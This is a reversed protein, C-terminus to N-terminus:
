TVLNTSASAAAPTGSFGEPLLHIDNWSVPELISWKALFFPIDAKDAFRVKIGLFYGHASCRFDAELGFRVYM